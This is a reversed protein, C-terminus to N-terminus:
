QALRAADHEAVEALTAEDGGGGVWQAPSLGDLDPHGSSAWSAATWPSILGRKVLTWHARALPRTPRGDQFQFAPYCDAGSSTPLVILEENWKMLELHFGDTELLQAAEDETFLTGLGKRWTEEAAAIRATRELTSRDLDSDGLLREWEALLLRAADRPRQTDTRIKTRNVARKISRPHPSKEGRELLFAVLVRRQRESMGGVTKSPSIRAQSLIRNASVRGFGPVSLLLDFVKATLLFEPPDNLLPAISLRGDKLDRKLKARATRIDNARKLAEMRQDLSREGAGRRTERKSAPM